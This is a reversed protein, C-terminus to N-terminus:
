LCQTETFHIENGGDQFHSSDFEALTTLHTRSHYLQRESMVRLSEAVMTESFIKKDFNRTKHKKFSGRHSKTM